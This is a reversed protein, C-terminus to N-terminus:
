TLGWPNTPQQMAQQSCSVPALCILIVLAIGLVAAGSYTRMGNWHGWKESATMLFADVDVLRVVGADRADLVVEGRVGVAEQLRADADDVHPPRDLVGDRVLRERDRVPPGEVLLVENLDIEHVGLARPRREAHPVVWLQLPVVQPALGRVLDRQDLAVVRLLIPRPQGRMRGKRILPARLFRRM